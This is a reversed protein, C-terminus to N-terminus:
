MYCVSLFIVKKCNYHEKILKDKQRLTVALWWLVILQFLCKICRLILNAMWGVEVVVFKNKGILKGANNKPEYKAVQIKSSLNQWILNQCNKYPFIAVHSRVHADWSCFVEALCILCFFVFGYVATNTKCYYYKRLGPHSKTLESCFKRAIPQTTVRM